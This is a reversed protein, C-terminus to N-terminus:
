LPLHAGRRRHPPARCGKGKILASPLDHRYNFKFDIKDATEDNWASYLAPSLQVIKKGGSASKVYCM